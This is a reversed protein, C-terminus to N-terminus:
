DICLTVRRGDDQLIENCGFLPKIPACTRSRALCVSECDSQKRCAKGADRTRKICAKTGPKGANDWSGGRKECLIQERPKEEVPEAVPEDPVPEAVGVEQAPEAVAAVSGPRPRPRIGADAAQNEGDALTTESIGDQAADAPLDSGQPLLKCAVLLPLLLVLAFSSLRMPSRVEQGFCRTTASPGIVPGRALGTL